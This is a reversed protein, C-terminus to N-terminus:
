RGSQNDLRDRLQIVPWSQEHVTGIGRGSSNECYGSVTGTATFRCNGLVPGKKGAEESICTTSNFAWSVNRPGCIPVITSTQGFSKTDPDYTYITYNSTNVTDVCPSVLGAGGIEMTGDFTISGITAAQVPTTTGAALGLALAGALVLRLLNRKM